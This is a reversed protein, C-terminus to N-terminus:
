CVHFRAKCVYHPPASIHVPFPRSNGDKPVIANLHCLGGVDTDEGVEAIKLAELESLTSVRHNLVLKTFTVTAEEMFTDEKGDTGRVRLATHTGTPM